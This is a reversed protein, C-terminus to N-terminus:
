RALTPHDYLYRDLRAARFTWSRWDSPAEWEALALESRVKGAFAVRETAETPLAAMYADLAPISPPGLTWLYYIDLPIGEGSVERSHAVNFRAIFAPIDALATAYLTVILTALSLAVLWENSRRLLIRLLILFLGVAVLGMWIGAAVRLETLSYIEVYLDLRLISSLCLLINQAIWLHVLGRLLASKDGPGGRRMAALVFAAALLATVMLPYAGRHAYEAHSMGDPLSAGGWLYTLDLLTQVAFLANFVILSRLLATHGFFENEPKAAVAIEKQRRLRLRKLRPRLFLSIFVAVILWFGIRWVDLFQLLITLDISRLVKDILPNAMAFLAIFGAAFGLPMIWGRLHPWLTAPTPKRSHRLQGYTGRRFPRFPMDLLFGLMVNPLHVLQRPFLGTAALSVCAIGLLSVAIGMWSTTELLPASLALSLALLGIIKLSSPRKRASLLLGITITNAFLFLNLGPAKGFILIDAFAVLAVLTLPHRNSNSTSKTPPAAADSLSLLM